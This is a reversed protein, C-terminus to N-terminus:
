LEQDVVQSDLKGNGDQLEALQRLSGGISRPKPVEGKGSPWGERQRSRDGDTDETQDHFLIQRTPFPLDIGNEVLKKKIASIVKDRSDLDDARRPPNIWWRVRINVSSEALEMVLVDPAPDQLVVDVSHLAELMLQKTWDIDDGYGIGVDYELRRSEFATNVTVSNTFLESNPIVIRRGDYTRITTARTQINEVTGEFGKFVIQDDIQFPETLLILIGALFNQLIDRFAFGIAVGSIGLLQVLDAVQLSPIVISLSIFLGILVTIGQALRGLVMGLNRAHRRNRTLRKVVQKIQRGVFFFIAFVILGLVINPLLTVFDRVMTQVKDWLVSIEANM